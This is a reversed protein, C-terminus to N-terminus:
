VIHGLFSASISLSSQSDNVMKFLQDSYQRVTMSKAAPKIQLLGGGDIVLAQRGNSVQMTNSFCTPYQSKLFDIATSKKSPNMLSCNSINCLALPAQTFEHSFILTPPLRRQEIIILLNRMQRDVSHMIKSLDKSKVDVSRQRRQNKMDGPVYSDADILELFM